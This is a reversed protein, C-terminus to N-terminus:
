SCALVFEELLLATPTRLPPDHNQEFHRIGEHFLPRTHHILPVTYESRRMARANKNYRCMSNSVVLAPKARLWLRTSHAMRTHRRPSPTDSAHKRMLVAARVCLPNASVHAQRTWKSHIRHAPPIRSTGSTRRFRRLISTPDM